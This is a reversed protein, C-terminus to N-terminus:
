FNIKKNFYVKAGGEGELEILEKWLKVSNPVNELARRLVKSKMAKDNEKNAAAIWIKVSKPLTSIAKALVARAKDPIELRAAELWLDENDLCNQLGQALINRATQLKGDLEEVRAAAIWGSVNKPNSNIM